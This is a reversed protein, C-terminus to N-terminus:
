PRGIRAVRTAMVRVQAIQSRESRVPSCGTRKEGSPRSYTSTQGSQWSIARSCPQIRSPLGVIGASEDGNAAPSAEPAREESALPRLLSRDGVLRDQAAERLGLERDDLRGIEEVRARVAARDGADGLAEARRLCRDNRERPDAALHDHRDHPLDGPVLVPDSGVRRLRNPEGLATVVQVSSSSLKVPQFACRASSPRRIGSMARTYAVRTGEM